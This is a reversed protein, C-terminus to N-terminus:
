RATLVDGDVPGRGALQSEPEVDDLVEFASGVGGAEDGQGLLVPDDGALFQESTDGGVL